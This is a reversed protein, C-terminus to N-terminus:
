LGSTRRLVRGPRAGTHQGNRVVVVGNVIVDRASPSQALRGADFIALDAAANDKLVGRGAFGLRAAPLSTMKRIAEEMSMLHRGVVVDALVRMPDSAIVVLPHLLLRDSEPNDAAGSAPFVEQDVWVDTNRRRADDILKLVATTTAPKLPDLMLGSLQVPIALSEALRISEAVSQDVTFDATRIQAAYLGRALSVVRALAAIESNRAFRGPPSQLGTSLGIAGDAIAEFVMANMRNLDALLPDRLVRGIVSARVTSHGVFTAFNVSLGARRIDDLESGIDASSVGDTGAVITTIGSAVFVEAGPRNAIDDAHTHSDIFGPSVTLGTADIRQDASGGAIRGLAVIRGARIAIDGDRAPQGTGDVIHANTILLDYSAQDDAALFAGIVVLMAAALFRM